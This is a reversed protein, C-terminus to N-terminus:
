IGWNQLVQYTEGWLQPTPPRIQDLQTVFNPPLPAFKIWSPLDQSRRTTRQCVSTLHLINVFQGM